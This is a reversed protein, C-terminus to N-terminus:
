QKKEVLKKVLGIRRTLPEERDGGVTKPILPNILVHETLSTDNLVKVEEPLEVAQKKRESGCQLVMTAQSVITAVGWPTLFKMIGHITSPIARLQRLCPRGLIINYPSPAPIATFKM